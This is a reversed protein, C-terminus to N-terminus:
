TGPILSRNSGFAGKTLVDALQFRDLYDCSREVNNPIYLMQTLGLSFGFKSAGSHIEADMAIEQSCM